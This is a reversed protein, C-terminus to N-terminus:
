AWMTLRYVAGGANGYFSKTVYDYLGIEGSPNKCPTFNRVLKGTDDYMKAYYLKMLSKVFWSANTTNVDFLWLTKSSFPTAYAQGGTQTFDEDNVLLFGQGPVNSADIIYDTNVSLTQGKYYAYGNGGGVEITKDSNVGLYDRGYPEAENHAGFVASKLSSSTTISTLNIKGVFRVGNTFAAGTDIYQTGTSQIYDLQTYGDPLKDEQAPPPM